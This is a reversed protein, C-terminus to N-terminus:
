SSRPSPDAEDHTNHDHNAPLQEPEFLADCMLWWSRSPRYLAIPVVISALLAMGAIVSFELGFFWSVAIIPVVVGFATVGYNLAIAGLFAGEDTDFRCGCNPCARNLEFLTGPKFLARTGCNPCRHTLGRQVIQMRTVTLEM